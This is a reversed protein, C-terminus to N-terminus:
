QSAQPISIPTCRRSARGVAVSQISQLVSASILSFCSSPQAGTLGALLRTGLGTQARELPDMAGLNAPQQALSNERRGLERHSTPPVCRHYRGAGLPRRYHRPSGRLAEHGHVRYRALWRSGFCGREVSRRLSLGARLSLASKKRCRCLSFAIGLRSSRARTRWDVM